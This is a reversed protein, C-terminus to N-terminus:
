KRRNLSFVGAFPFFNCVNPVKRPDLSPHSQHSHSTLPAFAHSTGELYTMYTQYTRYTRHVLVGVNTERIM